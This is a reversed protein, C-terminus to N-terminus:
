SNAHDIFQFKFITRWLIQLDLKLTWNQIYYIDFEIRKDLPTNGRLGHVQAWGTMGTKVRHRLMYNPISDQFQAVLEPREPRPGVLSMDGKLVNFLQPWEDISSKRLFRGLPTVRPDNNPSWIAGTEREADQVMTRFKLMPFNKGDLGVRTQVYLVAGPSGLKVLLAILALFPALVILGILSVAIDLLRKLFAKVGEMPIDGLNIIPIGEIHEMGAKLSAMQLIDPVLRIDLYLRNATDILKMITHYQSLPLAIFLDTIRQSEVVAELDDYGGLVDPGPRSSLRGCVEIGFHSYHGLNRATMAALDGEGIVLIHSIGNNKMYHRKYVAFVLLRVAFVLLASTPIYFFVFFHSVEFHIFGYSKLYSFILLLLVSVVISNILVLFLDDLRNRRLRIKYFGQYSYGIMSSILLLALVLLYDILPPIGKPAAILRSHFRFWYTLLFSLSIAIMDCYLYFRMLLKRRKKIM